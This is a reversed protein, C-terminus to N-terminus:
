TKTEKKLDNLRARVSECEERLLRVDEKISDLRGELRAVDRWTKVIYGLIGAFLIALGLVIIQWDDM